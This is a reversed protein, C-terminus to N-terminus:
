RKKRRQAKARREARDVILWDAMLSVWTDESSRLRELAAQAAPVDLQGLAGLAIVGEERDPASDVYAVLADAAERAGPDGIASLAEAAHRRVAPSPDSLHAALAPVAPAGFQELASTLAQRQEPDGTGLHAMLVPATEGLAIRGLAWWAKATVAPDPDGALPVIHEVLGPDGIKSLAHLVQARSPHQGALAEVLHPVTAEQQAVIVWTLTERVFFDPEDVLRQVLEGAVTADALTGLRMAAEQRVDPDPHTVARMAQQLTTM